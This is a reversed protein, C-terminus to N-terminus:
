FRGTLTQLTALALRNRIQSDYLANRATALANQADVVELVTADGGSYRLTTLRLSEAALDAAERLAQVEARSVAADNYFMYLDRLAERQTQSLDAQAQQRRYEAQRLKSRTAGWNWIPINLVATIFYGPTPVPGVEPNAATRARLALRNAEIGYDGDFTLTPFFGMRAIGVGLQAQRLTQVAARVDQNEHAALAEVDAFPPLPPAQDIDDVLTFNLDLSPSLLVALDLRAKDMALRAEQFAVNQQDFQLQAKIVDSHAVEGGRELEQSTTLFRQAEGLAQQATAYKRQAVLLGYYMQTVTVVLGRRAIEAKAEAIAAAAAASKYPAFTFFGAPLDQHVISWARYVHVGDNTVYRGGPIKGNGQTGLYQQSYGLSPLLAARAQVRDEEASKAASEAALYTAYYTRARAIADQLTVTVPLGTQGAAVPEVLEVNPLATSPAPQQPSSAGSAPQPAPAPVRQASLAATFLIVAAILVITCIRKM